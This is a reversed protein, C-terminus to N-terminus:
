MQYPFADKYHRFEKGEIAIVDFRCATDLLMAHRSLYFAAALSIKSQKLADVSEEPLGKARGSRYKIEVFVVTNNEKVILDIEGHRCHFNEELIEYGLRRLYDAAAQEYLKGTRRRNTGRSQVTKM